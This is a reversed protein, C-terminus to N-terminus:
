AHRGDAAAIRDAVELLDAGVIDPRDGLPSLV